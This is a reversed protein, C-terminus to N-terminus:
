GAVEASNRQRMMERFRIRNREAMEPTIQAQREAEERDKRRQEAERERQRKEDLGVKVWERWRPQQTKPDPAGFHYGPAYKGEAHSQGTGYYTNRRLGAFFLDIGDLGHTKLMAAFERRAAGKLVGAEPEVLMPARTSEAIARWRPMLREYWAWDIYATPLRDATM